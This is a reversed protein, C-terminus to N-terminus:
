AVIVIMIILIISIVISSTAMNKGEDYHNNYCMYLSYVGLFLGIFPIIFSLIFSALSFNKISNNKEIVVSDLYNNSNRINNENFKLKNGCNPCFVISDSVEKGCKKCFM